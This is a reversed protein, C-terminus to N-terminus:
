SSYMVFSVVELRKFFVIIRASIFFIGTFFIVGELSLINDPVSVVWLTPAFTLLYGKDPIISITFLILFM